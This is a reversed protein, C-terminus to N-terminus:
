EESAHFERCISLIAKDSINRKRSEILAIPNQKIGIRSAFEQQTLDLDRRIKRIRQGLVM